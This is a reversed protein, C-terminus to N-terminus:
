LLRPTVFSSIPRISSARCSKSFARSKARLAPLALRTVEASCLNRSRSLRSPSHSKELNLGLRFRITATLIANGSRGNRGHIFMESGQNRAIEQAADIAERQTRHVSSARQSGAGRVAWGDNHPVVRQNRKAM